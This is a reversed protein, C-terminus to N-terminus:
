FYNVIVKITKDKDLIFSGDKFNPKHLLNITKYNSIGVGEIPMLFGKDIKSNLNEDHLIHVLYVGKPLDKFTVESKQQNIKSKLQKFYHKLKNDPFKKANNYLSFCVDGQNNRLNDVKITLDYSQM